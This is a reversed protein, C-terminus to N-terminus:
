FGDINDIDTINCKYYLLKKLIGERSATKNQPQRDATVRRMIMSFNGGGRRRVCICLTISTPAKIVFLERTKKDHHKLGFNRSTVITKHTRVFILPTQFTLCCLKQLHIDVNRFFHAKNTKSKSARSIHKLTLKQKHRM